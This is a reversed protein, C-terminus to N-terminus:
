EGPRLPSTSHYYIPVGLSHVPPKQRREPYLSWMMQNVRHQEEVGAEPARV